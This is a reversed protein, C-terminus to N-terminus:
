RGKGFKPTWGKGKFAIGSISIVRKADGGCECGHTQPADVIKFDLEFRKGCTQCEFDYRPM